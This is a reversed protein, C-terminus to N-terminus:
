SELSMTSARTPFLKTGEQPLLPVRNRYAGRYEEPILTAVELMVQDIMAKRGVRSRVGYGNLEEAKMIEGISLNVPQGRRPLGAKVPMLKETGWLGMPLIHLGGRLQFYNSVQALGEHLMADYSRGGEPFVVLVHGDQLVEGSAIFARENIEKRKKEEQPANAELSPPWVDISNVAGLMVNSIINKRLRLGAIFVPSKFGKERLFHDLIKADSNSLHNSVVILPNGQDSVDRAKTLNNEGEVHFNSVGWWYLADSVLRPAISETHVGIARLGEKNM